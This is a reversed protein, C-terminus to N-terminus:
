WRPRGGGFRHVVPVRTDGDERSPGDWIAGARLVKYRTLLAAAEVYFVRLAASRSFVRHLISYSVAALADSTSARSTSSRWRGWGRARTTELPLLM